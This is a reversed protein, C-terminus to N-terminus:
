RVRLVDELAGADGRRLLSFTDRLARRERPWAFRRAAEGFELWAVEDHEPSLRVDTGSAVFAVFVPILAVVDLRHVYFQEIRSLNYLREAVLGTEERLEREAAAAPAEGEELHGHITEWAGPCRVDAARRLCLVDWSDTGPRLVYVDVYLVGISTM